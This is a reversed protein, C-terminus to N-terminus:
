RMSLAPTLERLLKRVMAERYDDYSRAVVVFRFPGAIVTTEYWTVPDNRAGDIVLGNITVGKSAIAQSVPLVPNGANAIGDGSVDIVRRRCDAVEPGFMADAHILAEAVATDAMWFGRHQSTFDVVFQNIDARTRLTYWRIAQRQQGLGGWQTVTAMIGGPLTEILDAVEADQFAAGIGDRMLFYEYKDVSRSVDLAMVLAVDCARAPASLLILILFVLRM